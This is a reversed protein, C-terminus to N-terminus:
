ALPHFSRQMKWAIRSATAYNWDKGRGGERRKNM